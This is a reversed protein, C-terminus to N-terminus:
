IVLRPILNSNRWLLSLTFRTSTFCAPESLCADYPAGPTHHWHDVSLWGVCAAVNTRNTPRGSTKSNATSWTAGLAGGLLWCPFCSSLIQPILHIYLKSFGSSSFRHSQSAKNGTPVLARLVLLFLSGHLRRSPPWQLWKPFCLVVPACIVALSTLWDSEHLIWAPLVVISVIEVGFQWFAISREWTLFSM